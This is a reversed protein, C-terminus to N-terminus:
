CSQCREQSLVLESSMLHQFHQANLGKKQLRNTRLYNYFLFFLFSDAISKGTDQLVGGYFASLGGEKNYIQEFADLVGKYEGEDATTSSKRLSRQVQLRTIVLDLPYIALNAIATGTSGALAHGLAPLAPGELTSHSGEQVKHYSSFADLQSNYQSFSMNATKNFISLIEFSSKSSPAGM